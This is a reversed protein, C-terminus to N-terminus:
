LFLYVAKRWNVQVLRFVQAVADVDHQFAVHDFEGEPALTLKRSGSTKAARSRNM